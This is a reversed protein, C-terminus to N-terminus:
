MDKIDGKVKEVDQKADSAVGKLDEPLKQLQPVMSALPSLQALPGVQNSVGDVTQKLASFDDPLSTLKPALDKLQALPKVPDSIEDKLIECRQMINFSCVAKTAPDLIPTVQVSLTGISKNVDDFLTKTAAVAWSNVTNELDTLDGSTLSGLFGM